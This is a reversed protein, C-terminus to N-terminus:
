GQMRHLADVVTQIPAVTTQEAIKYPQEVPAVIWSEKIELDHVANWFQKTVEPSTSATCEVAIRRRGPQIITTRSYDLITFMKM